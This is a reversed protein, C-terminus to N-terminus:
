RGRHARRYETPTQNTWRRFARHFAAAESFGTLLAIDPISMDRTSLYRLALQKRVDDLLVRFSTQEQELKRNLTRRSMELKRAIRVASGNGSALDNILHERVREALSKTRPLAALENEAHRAIIRHLSPDATRQRAALLERAVGFGSFAAGFHLRANPLTARYEDLQAPEPYPFWVDLDRPMSEPWAMSLRVLMSGIQFDLALRPLVIPNEVRVVARAGEEVLTIQLTDNVLRAYRALVAIRDGMTEATSMAYYLASGDAETTERAARLGLYPDRTLKEAAGLLQHVVRIPVRQDGDANELWSLAGPPLLREDKLVRMFPWALRAAYCPEDTSGLERM